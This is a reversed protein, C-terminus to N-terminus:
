LWAIRSGYGAYDTRAAIRLVLYGCLVHTTHIAAVAVTRVRVLVHVFGVVAVLLSGRYVTCAVLFWLCSGVHSSLTRFSRAFTVFASRLCVHFPLVALSDAVWRLLHARTIRLYCRLLYVYALFRSDSRLGFQFPCFTTYFVSVSYIDAVFPCLWRLGYFPLIRAFARCLLITVFLATPVYRLPLFPTPYLIAYRCCRIAAVIQFRLTSCCGVAVYRYLDFAVFLPVILPLCRAVLCVYCDSRPLTVRHLRCRFAVVYLPFTGPLVFAVYPALRLFLGPVYPMWTCRVYIVLLGTFSRVV